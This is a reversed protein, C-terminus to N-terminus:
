NDLTSEVIKSKKQRKKKVLTEKQSSELSLRNMENKRVVCSNFNANPKYTKESSCWRAFKCPMQTINCIYYIGSGINKEEGFNCFNM